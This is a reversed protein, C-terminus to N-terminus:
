EPIKRFLYWATGGFAAPMCWASLLPQLIGAYGMSLFATYGVWYLLSIFIGLAATILGGGAAGQTALAIGLVLMILNILPYSIKAYIDVILKTNRFGASKLRKTYSMLERVNMEEPKQMGKKFTEPPDISESQMERYHAITGQTINYATVERLYWVGGKATDAGTEPQPSWVPRWEASEAEIRETLLSDEIKMISVGKMIGKDPLFFDIKVIADKARLWLTGEKVALINERKSLSDRLLHAKRSFDPVVFESILFGAISLLLGSVVFPMLLAKMSGGSAKIAITEKKREAQGFVFLGSVLAAMPMLYLFYQPLNLGAYLFLDVISPKQPIFDNVKNMLEMLTFTLSLGFAIIVYLKLFEKLYYRQIIKM